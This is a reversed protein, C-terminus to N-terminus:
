NNKFIESIIEFICIDDFIFPLNKTHNIIYHLIILIKGLSYNITYNTDDFNINTNYGIQKSYQIFSIMTKKNKEENMESEKLCSSITNCKKKELYHGLTKDFYKLFCSQISNSNSNAKFSDCDIKNVLEKLLTKMNEIKSEISTSDTENYKNLIYYILYYNERNEKNKFLAGSWGMGGELEKQLM